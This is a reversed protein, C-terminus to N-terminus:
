LKTIFPSSPSSDIKDYPSRPSLALSGALAHSFPRAILGLHGIQNVNVKILTTVMFDILSNLFHIESETENTRKNALVANSASGKDRM